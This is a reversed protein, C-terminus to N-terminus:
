EKATMEKTPTYSLDPRMWGTKTEFKRTIAMTKQNLAKGEEGLLENVKTEQAEFDAPSAAWQVVIYLPAETGMGGTYLRYGSEIKKSAFLDQWEKAIAKAQEENGPKIYYYDFRRFALGEEMLGTNQPDYSLDPLLSIM